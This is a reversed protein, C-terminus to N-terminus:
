KIEKDKSDVILKANWDLVTVSPDYEWATFKQEYEQVEQIFVTIPIDKEESWKKFAKLNGYLKTWEFFETEHEVDAPKDKSGLTYLYRISM